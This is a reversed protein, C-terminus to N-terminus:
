GKWKINETKEDYANEIIEKINNSHYKIVSIHKGTMKKLKKWLKECPCRMCVVILTAFSEVVIVNNKLSFQKPLIHVENGFEYNEINVYPIKFGYLSDPIREM